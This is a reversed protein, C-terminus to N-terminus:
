KNINNYYNFESLQQSVLDLDYLDLSSSNLVNEIDFILEKISIYKTVDFGYNQLINIQEQTIFINNVKKLFKDNNAIILENNM